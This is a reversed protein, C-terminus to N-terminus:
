RIARRHPDLGIPVRHHLSQLPDGAPLPHRAHRGIGGRPSKPERVAGPHSKLVGAKTRWSEPIEAVVAGLERAIELGVIRGNFMASSAEAIEHADGAAFVPIGAARAEQTFEDIPNLGVAILITDCAFTKETGPLPRFSRDVAAITVSEVRERGNASLITHATYIPVGLRKLKDAHVKYGGCEPM